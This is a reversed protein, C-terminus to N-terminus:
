RRTAPPARREAIPLDSSASPCGTATSAGAVNGAAVAAALRHSKIREKALPQVAMVPTSATLLPTLANRSGATTLARRVRVAIMTSRATMSAPM